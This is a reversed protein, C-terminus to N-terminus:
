EGDRSNRRQGGHYARPRGQFAWDKGTGVTESRISRLSCQQEEASAFHPRSPRRIFSRTADTLDGYHLVFRQHPDHPDQYIDEIRGTNFSSSRRKIGHVEYGQELLFRALYAGDQGTVGTILARKGNNAGSM